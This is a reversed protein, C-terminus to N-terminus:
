SSRLSAQEMHRQLISYEYRCQVNDSTTVMDSLTTDILADSARINYVSTASLTAVAAVTFLILVM